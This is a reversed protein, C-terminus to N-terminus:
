SDRLHCPCPECNLDETEQFGSSVKGYPCFSPDQSVTERQKGSPSAWRQEQRCQINPTSGEAARGLKPLANETQFDTMETREEMRRRPLVEQGRDSPRDLYATYGLVLGSPDWARVGGM